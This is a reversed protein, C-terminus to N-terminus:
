AYALKKARVLCAEETRRYGMRALEREMAQAVLHWGFGKKQQRAVARRSIWRRAVATEARSWAPRRKSWGLAALRIRLRMRVSGM